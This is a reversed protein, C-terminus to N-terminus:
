ESQEGAQPGLLIHRMSRWDIRFDGEDTELVLTQPRVSEDTRLVWRTLGHRTLHGEVTERELPHCLLTAKVAPIQAAMLQKILASIRQAPAVEDLLRLLAQNAISTAYQELNDSLTQHQNEWRKLQADARQWFEVGAQEHLEERQEAALLLLQEAQTKARELLQNAQASEMIEEQTIVLRPTGPAGDHMALKRRCLM